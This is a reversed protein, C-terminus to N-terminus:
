LVNSPSHTFFLYHKQQKKSIATGKFHPCIFIANLILLANDELVYQNQPSKNGKM